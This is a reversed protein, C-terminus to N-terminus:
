VTSSSPFMKQYDNFVLICRCINCTLSAFNEMNRKIMIKVQSWARNENRETFWVWPFRSVLFDLSRAVSYSSMLVRSIASSRLNIQHWILRIASFKFKNIQLLEQRPSPLSKRQFKMNKWGCNLHIFERYKVKM